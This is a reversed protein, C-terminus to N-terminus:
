NNLLRIPYAHQPTILIIFEGRDTYAHIQDADNGTLKHLLRIVHAAEVYSPKNGEDWKLYIKSTNAYQGIQKPELAYVCKIVKLVQSKSLTISRIKQRTIRSHFDELDM